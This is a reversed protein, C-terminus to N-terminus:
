PLTSPIRASIWRFSHELKRPNVRCSMKCLGKCSRPLAQKYLSSISELDVMLGLAYFRM